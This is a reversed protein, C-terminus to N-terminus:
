KKVAIIIHPNPFWSFKTKLRTIKIDRFGSQQLIENWEEVTRIKSVAGAEAWARNLSERFLFLFFALLRAISKIGPLLWFPSAGVDAISLCGENKLIRHCEAVLIEANMHHTALACTIVDFSQNNYPMDMASACLLNVETQQNGDSLRPKARKLMSFTIDLGHIQNQPTGDLILKAPIVGTGTALDLISDGHALPVNELFTEVLSKYRWGWFFSLESDVTEEYRPALETFARIINNQDDM